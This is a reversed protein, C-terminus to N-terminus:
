SNTQTFQFDFECKVSSISDISPTSDVQPHRTEQTFTESRPIRGLTPLPNQELDGVVKKFDPSAFRRFLKSTLTSFTTPTSAPATTASQLTETFSISERRRRVTRSKRVPVPTREPLTPSLMSTPLSCRKGYYGENFRGVRVFKKMKRETECKNPLIPTLLIGLTSPACPHPTNRNPQHSFFISKEADRGNLLPPLHRTSSPMNEQFTCQKSIPQNYTEPRPVPTRAGSFIMDQPGLSSKNNEREFEMPPLRGPKIQPTSQLTCSHSTEARGSMKLVELKSALSDVKGEFKGEDAERSRKSINTLASICETHGLFKAVEVASNGAKNQRDIQLGLRKFARVLFEVVLTHDAVAAYILPTNGWSDLLEPDAGNQVLIKVADLYGKECAYSLATRGNGDQYNVSAGRHLLLEMFKCRNQSDPLLVSSILPTQAGDATSDVIEGNLADLVFRALHVKDKSMADLLIKTGTQGTTKLM